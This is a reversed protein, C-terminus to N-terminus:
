SNLIEINTARAIEKGHKKFLDKEESKIEYEMVDKPKLNKEKRMEQVSRIVERVRGEEALEPTINTDLKIETELNKDQVVEKVNLEEQILNVYETGLEDNKIRLESLPQRVKINAKSRAELALSVIARTRNMNKILKEDVKGVKPWECLNISEPEGVLKIEQYIDEAIFPMIPAILKSLEKLVFRTTGLAFAKDEEDNGKFRNRSRRIYWTSFDSIFDRMPRTARVMDYVDMAETTGLILQNL